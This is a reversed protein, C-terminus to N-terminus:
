KKVGIMELFYAAITEDMRGIYTGQIMGEADIFYSTPFGTVQYQITVEQDLDALYTMSYNNTEAFSRIEEMMDGSNIALVVLEGAFQDTIEQLLPMEQICPPCWTAWFTLLVPTGAFDSLTVMEGTLTQLEFDEAPKKEVEETEDVSLTEPTSGGFGGLSSGASEESKSEAPSIIKIFIMVVLIIIIIILAAYFYWERKKVIEEKKM